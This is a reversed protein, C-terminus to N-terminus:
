VRGINLPPWYRGVVKWRVDDIHVPGIERSDSTSLARNDGLLFVENAGLRWEGDPRTPGDAWPEALVAADAHVQGNSVEIMEGPLGVIRKVLELDAQLPSAIIVVDGREIEGTRAQAIVYDGSQLAPHMSAEAIEYRRVRGRLGAYALLAVAATPALRSSKSRSVLKQLVSVRPRTRGAM